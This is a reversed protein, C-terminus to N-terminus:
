GTADGHELTTGTTGLWPGARSRATVPGFTSLAAPLRVQVEVLVAAGDPRCTVLRARNAM